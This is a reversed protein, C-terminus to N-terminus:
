KINIAQNNINYAYRLFFGIAKIIFDLLSLSLNHSFDTLQYFIPFIYSIQYFNTILYM